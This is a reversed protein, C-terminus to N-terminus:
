VYNNKTRTLRIEINLSWNMKNWLFMTILLINVMCNFRQVFSGSIVLNGCDRPGSNSSNQLNRSGSISENISGYVM